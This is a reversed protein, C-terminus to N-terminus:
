EPCVIVDGQIESGLPVKANGRVKVCGCPESIRNGTLVLSASTEESQTEPSKFVLGEFLGSTVRFEIDLKRTLTLEGSFGPSTTWAEAYVVQQRGLLGSCETVADVHIHIQDAM